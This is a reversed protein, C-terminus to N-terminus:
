RYKGVRKVGKEYKNLWVAITQWAINAGLFALAHICAPILFVLTVATALTQQM